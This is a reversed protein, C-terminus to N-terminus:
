SPSRTVDPSSPAKAVLWVSGDRHLELIMAGAPLSAGLILRTIHRLVAVGVRHLWRGLRRAATALRKTLAFFVLVIKIKIEIEIM